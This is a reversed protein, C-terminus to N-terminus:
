QAPVGCVCCLHVRGISLIGSASCTGSDSTVTCGAEDDTSGGGIESGTACTMFCSGNIINNICIASSNVSAGPVGQPGTDGKDGRFGQVGTAGTDGKPGQLTATTQLTGDPFMIGDVGPSGAVHLLAEPLITGIGVNGDIYVADEPYQGDVFKGDSSNNSSNLPIVVVKDAAIAIVSYCLLLITIGILLLQRFQKTKLM